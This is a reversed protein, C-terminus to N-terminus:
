KKEVVVIEFLKPWWKGTVFIKGTPVEYAIGNLVDIKNTIFKKDLIGTLDIKGLVKGTEPEIRVIYDEQYVNAWIEGKIYELENLYLIEGDYDYVDLTATQAFNEPNMYYLRASGDSMILQKGDTTIGWGETSYNFKNIQKFTTKDYVFCENSKWTIQYIKNGFITIGEGFIDNALSVSKLVEGTEYKVKRLSSAGMEGTGEYMVGKEIVLGQTYASIDHNYTKIIKFTYDKPKIDSLLLIYTETVEIKEKKSFATAIIKQQGVAAKASNLRIEFPPKNTTGINKGNMSFVISDITAAKNNYSVAIPINEGIRYKENNEPTNFTLFTSKSEINENSNKDGNKEQETKENNCSILIMFCM